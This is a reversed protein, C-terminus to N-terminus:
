KGQARLMAERERRQIEELRTGAAQAERMTQNVISDPRSGLDRMFSGWDKIEYDNHAQFEKTCRMEGETVQFILKGDLDKGYKVFKVASLDLVIETDEKVTVAVLGKELAAADYRWEVFGSESHGMIRINGQPGTAGGLWEHKITFRSGKRIHIGTEIVVPMDNLPEGWNDSVSYTVEARPIYGPKLPDMSAINLRMRDEMRKWFDRPLVEMTVNSIGKKMNFPNFMLHCTGFDKNVVWYVGGNEVKNMDIDLVHVTAEKAETREEYIALGLGKLGKGSFYLHEGGHFTNGTVLVFISDAPADEYVRLTIKVVDRLVAEFIAGYKACWRAEESHRGSPGFDEVHMTRTKFAAFPSESGQAQTFLSVFFVVFFAFRTFM